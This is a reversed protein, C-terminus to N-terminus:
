QAQRDGSRGASRLHRCTPRRGAVGNVRCEARGKPAGSVARVSEPGLVRRVTSNAGHRCGSTLMLFRHRGPRLRRGTRGRGRPCRLPHQRHLPEGPVLGHDGRQARGAGARDLQEHGSSLMAARRHQVGGVHPRPHRLEGVELGRQRVLLQADGLGDDLVCDRLEQIPHGPLLAELALVRDGRDDGLDEGPRPLDALRLEVLRQVRGVPRLDVLGHEVGVGGDLLGVLRLQLRQHLVGAVQHELGLAVGGPQLGHETRLVRHGLRAVRAPAGGEGGRCAVEVLVDGGVVVEVVRLREQAAPGLM